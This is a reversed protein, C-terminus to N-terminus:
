LRRRVFIVPAIADILTEEVDLIFEKRRGNDDPPLWGRFSQFGAREGAGIYCKLAGLNDKRRLFVAEEPAPPQDPDCYCVHGSAIGAPAMSEGSAIVAFARPGLVLPSAAVAFPMIQELGRVGCSALGMLPMPRPADLQPAPRHAAEGGEPDGEGTVLWILNFNLKKSITWCDEASPWNGKEWYQAKGHSVDLYRGLALKSAPVNKSEALKSFKEYIM